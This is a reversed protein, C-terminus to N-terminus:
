QFGKLFDKIDKLERTTKAKPINYVFKKGYGKSRLRKDLISLVGYDSKKRILRGLGQKLTIIAQPVQFDFFPNGGQSKILNIKAEILPDGPSAFPLKDIIVCVLADGQVDVGGWFSMTAFLVSSKDEIFEKLLASKPMDGQMMTQYPIKDHILEYVARMNRNSTFLAFTRGGCALILELIRKASEEIFNPQSPEHDILPLYYRARSEFDFPSELMLETVELPRSDDMVPVGNFDEVPPPASIGLREKIYTFGNDAALTASTLVMTEQKSFLTTNLTASVDIPNAKLFVGRGRLECWYVYNGDAMDMVFQLEDRMIMARRMCGLMEDKKGTMTDIHAILVDFASNLADLAKTAQRERYKFFVSLKFSTANNKQFDSFLKFFKAGASLFRDLEDALLKDVVKEQSMAFKVDRAIEDIRYNSMATGFYSSATDELQHAEDFVIAHYHPVVVFQDSTEKVVLDAFFLHHNIIVIDAKLAREKMLTIYCEKIDPCKQGSCQESSSTIQKFFGVGEPIDTLEEIDGTETKTLWAAVKNFHKIDRKFDFTGQQGFHKYKKLCIYNGRGKMCAATFDMELRDQLFPIDKTFIQEQLNKTGTSIVTKKGSLVAPILYALTKGTGTQAEALLIGRECFTKYVQEAMVMQEHRYEFHDLSRSLIGDESFYQDIVQDSM